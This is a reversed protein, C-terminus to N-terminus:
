CVRTGFLMTVIQIAAPSVWIAPQMGCKNQVNNTCLGLLVRYQGHQICTQYVYPLVHM